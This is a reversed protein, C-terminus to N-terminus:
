AAVEWKGVKNGNEDYIWGFDGPEVEPLASARFAVLKLAESLDVGTKMADNGLEINLTFNM